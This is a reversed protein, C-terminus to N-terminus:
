GEERVEKEAAPLHSVIVRAPVAGPHTGAALEAARGHLYAGCAAAEAPALGQALLAGIVGTLVDGAGGSALGSTGTPNVMVTGEPGAIITRAGKALVVAGSAAAAARAAALRDGVVRETPWGLLRGLEGPHPTLVTGGERSALAGLRGALLTLADADLLLPGRWESLVQELIRAPGAGLGLGPGVALATAKALLPALGDGRAAGDEDQPLPDVMAEPVIAQIPAVAGAPTAVTVLGAGATVGAQAALAAAGARGVRGAVGHLHGFPGKHADVARQPLWAALDAAELLGLAAEERVVWPPIGIDAVAVEGCRWCAPPLVHAIKAAAFTVTLAAEVAEGAVASSSGSLGSPIDVAVVPVGVNNLIRIMEAWFGTVPRDLGTGFLADVVVDADALAEGLGGDGGPWCAAVPIGFSRALELQKAADGALARPEVLLAVLASFGRCALQRAVALGDGGNNGPGCAVVVRGATAFREAVVDTVAAAAAEMLVLSPMGLDVITRRDAARMGESDLVWIM